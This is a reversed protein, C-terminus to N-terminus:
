LSRLCLPVSYINGNGFSPVPVYFPHIPGFCSQFGAPCVNFEITGRRGNPGHSTMIPDPLGAGM